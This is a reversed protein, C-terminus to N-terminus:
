KELGLLHLTTVPLTAETSIYDVKLLYKAAMCEEMWDNKMYVMLVLDDIEDWSKM